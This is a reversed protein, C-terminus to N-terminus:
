TINKMDIVDIRNKYWFVINFEDKKGDNNKSNKVENKELQQYDTNGIELSKARRWQVNLYKRMREIFLEIKKDSDDIFAKTAHGKAEDDKIIYEMPNMTSLENILEIIETNDKDLGFNLLLINKHKSVVAGIEEFNKLFEVGTESYLYKSARSHHLDEIASIYTASHKRVDQIWEIRSSSILSATINDENEKKSSSNNLKAGIVVGLMTGAVTILSVWFDM